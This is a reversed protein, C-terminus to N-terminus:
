PPLSGQGTWFSHRRQKKLEYESSWRSRILAPLVTCVPTYIDIDLWKDVRRNVVYVNLLQCSWYAVSGRRPGFKADKRHTPRQPFWNFPEPSYRAWIKTCSCTTASLRKTIPYQFTWEGDCVLEQFRMRCRRSELNSTSLNLHRINM